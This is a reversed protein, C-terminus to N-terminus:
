ILIELAPLKEGALYAILAGGGTSLYSISKQFGLIEAAATSDGGGIVSYKSKTMAAFLAATGKLTEPINLDGMLGNYFTTQANAIISGYAAQTEPGISIGFDNSELNESTKISFPGTDLNKGVLYDTPFVISVNNNIAKEMIKKCEALESSDVLSSGTTIGQSKLFSFVIGPCLLITDIKPILEEILQIKDKLKNGGVILVFPRKANLLTDAHMLENEICLGITRASAGFLKPVELVSCDTRHLTGFADNVYYEGLRALAQAFQPSPNKEGPYFRLNELLLIKQPDHFSKSYATSIDSQFDIRYGEREFWPILIKTSLNPEHNEPRGIHTALIIKGGKSLILDLTPKIAQLRLDACIAGNKLPVNLDARLFVRKQNLDIQPLKSMIKKM